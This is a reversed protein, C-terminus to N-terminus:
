SLAEFVQVKNGLHVSNLSIQEECITDSVSSIAPTFAGGFVTCSNWSVQQGIPWLTGEDVLESTSSIFMTSLHRCRVSYPGTQTTDGHTTQSCKNVTNVQFIKIFQRHIHIYRPIFSKTKVSVWFKVPPLAHKFVFGLSFILEPM